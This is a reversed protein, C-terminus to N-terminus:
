DDSRVRDTSVQAKKEGERGEVASDFQITSIVVWVM